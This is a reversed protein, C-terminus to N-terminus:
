ELRKKLNETLRELSNHAGFLRPMFAPHDMDEWDFPPQQLMISMDFFPAKCVENRLSTTGFNTWTPENLTVQKCFRNITKITYAFNPEALLGWDHWGQVMIIDKFGRARNFAAVVGDPTMYDFIGKLALYGPWYSISGHIDGDTFVMTDFHQRVWGEAILHYGPPADFGDGIFKISAGMCDSDIVGRINYGSYDKALGESPTDFRLQMAKVSMLAGQSIGYLITPTIDIGDILSIGETDGGYVSEGGDWTKMWFEPWQSPLLGPTPIKTSGGALQDLMHFINVANGTEMPTPITVYETPSAPVPYWELTVPHPAHLVVGELHQSSFNQFRSWGESIGHAQHDYFLISYGQLVLHYIMKRYNVCQERDGTVAQSWGHNFLILPKHLVGSSDKIGDGRIFWGRLKYSTVPDLVEYIPLGYSDYGTLEMLYPASISMLIKSLYDAKQDRTLYPNTLIPCFPFASPYSTCISIFYDINEPNGVDLLKNKIINQMFNALVYKLGPVFYPPNPLLLGEQFLNAPMTFEVVTTRNDLDAIPEEFDGPRPVETIDNIITQPIETGIFGTAFQTELLGALNRISMELGIPSLEAPIIRDGYTELAYKLQPGTFGYVPHMEWDIEEVFGSLGFNPMLIDDGASKVWRNIPPIADFVNGTLPSIDNVNCSIYNYKTGSSFLGGATGCLTIDSPPFQDTPGTCTSFYLDNSLIYDDLTQGPAQARGLGGIGMAAGTLSAGALGIGKLFNSRSMGSQRVNSSRRGMGARYASNNRRGM